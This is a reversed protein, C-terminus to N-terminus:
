SRLANYYQFLFNEIQLKYNLSHKDWSILFLLREQLQFIKKVKIKAKLSEFNTTYEKFYIIQNTVNYAILDCIWKHFFELIFSFAITKGDFESSFIYIDDINPNSLVKIFLNIQETNLKTEILPCNNSFNLWFTLNDIKQQQLYEIAVANEPKKLQFKFCRSTITPLISNINNSVLVFLAHATPEEMIKLLANAASLNLRSSDEVLILKYKSIHSSTSIFDIAKRITAVSIMVEDENQGINFFDPHSLNNFLKCSNCQNCYLGYSNRNGCLISQIWNYAFTKKGIGKEGYLLIAQPMQKNTMKNLQIFEQQQWKFLEKNEM